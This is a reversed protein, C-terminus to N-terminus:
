GFALDGASAIDANGDATYRGKLKAFRRGWFDKAYMMSKAIVNEAVAADCDAIAHGYAGGKFPM